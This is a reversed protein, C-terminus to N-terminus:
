GSASGVVHRPMVGAKRTRADNTKGPSGHM